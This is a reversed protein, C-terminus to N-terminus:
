ETAMLLGIRQIACQQIESVTSRIAIRANIDFPAICEYRLDRAYPDLDCLRIQIPPLDEGMQELWRALAELDHGWPKGGRAVIWAKLLKEIAAHAGQGFRNSDVERDLAAVDQQARRL